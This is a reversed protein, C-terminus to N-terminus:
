AFSTLGIETLYSNFATRINTIQTANLAASYLSLAITCDAYVNNSRFETQNSNFRSASTRTESYQNERNYLEVNTSSSRVIAKLGTGSMDVSNPLSSTGQNIKQATNNSNWLQNSTSGQVGEFARSVSNTTSSQLVYLRTASDQVYNTTLSLNVGTDILGNVKDGQFGNVTYTMGGFITVLSGTPNVMNIRAFNEVATNNFASVRLYDCISWAGQSKLTQIFTDVKKLTFSSPLTFGESNARDIVAKLESSYGYKHSTAIIGNM